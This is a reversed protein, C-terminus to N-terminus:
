TNRSRKESVYLHYEEIEVADTILFNRSCETCVTELEEVEKEIAEEKGKFTKLTRKLTARAEERLFSDVEGTFVNRGTIGHEDYTADIIRWNWLEDVRVMKGTCIKTIM